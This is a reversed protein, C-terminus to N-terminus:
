AEPARAGLHPLRVQQLRHAKDPPGDRSQSRRVSLGAWLGKSRALSQVSVTECANQNSPEPHPVAHLQAHASQPRLHKGTRRSSTVDPTTAPPPRRYGEPRKIQPGELRTMLRRSLRPPPPRPPSPPLPPSLEPTQKEPHTPRRQQKPRTHVFPQNPNEAGNETETVPRHGRGPGEQLPPARVPSLLPPRAGAQSYERGWGPSPGSLASGALCARSQRFLQGPWPPPPALRPYGPSTTAGEM